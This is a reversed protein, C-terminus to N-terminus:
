VRSSGAAIHRVVIFGLATLNVIIVPQERPILVSAQVHINIFHGCTARTVDHAVAIHVWRELLGRMWLARGM